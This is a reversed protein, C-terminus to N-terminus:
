INPLLRNSVSTESPEKSNLLSSFIENYEKLTRVNYIKLVSYFLNKKLKEKLIYTSNKLEINSKLQINEERLVKVQREILSPINKGSEHPVLIDKLLSKNEILFNPNSILYSIVSEESLM